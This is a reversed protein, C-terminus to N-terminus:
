SAPVHITASNLACSNCYNNFIYAALANSSIRQPFPFTIAFTSSRARCDNVISIVGKLLDNSASAFTLQFPAASVDHLPPNDEDRPALSFTVPSPSNIANMTVCGEGDNLPLSDVTISVSEVLSKSLDITGMITTNSADKITFVDEFSNSDISFFQATKASQTKNNFTYTYSGDSAPQGGSATIEVTLSDDSGCGKPIITVKKLHLPQVEAQVACLTGSLVGCLMVYKKMHEGLNKILIFFGSEFWPLM